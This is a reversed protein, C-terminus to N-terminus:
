HAYDDLLTQIAPPLEFLSAAPESSDIHEITIVQRQGMIQQIVQTAVKLGDYEQYERLISVTHIDGMPSPQTTEAAILLGTDVDYCDFSERGSRWVLRVRWCARNDFEAAGVTEATEVFAPDRLLGEPESQEAQAERETADLIRPGIFPDLSWALNGSYGSRMEGLGALEIIVIRESPLRSAATLVGDIGADPMEFRGHMTGTVNALFAARGGIAEIHREILARADPLSDGGAHNTLVVLATVLGLVPIRRLHFIMDPSETQPQPTKRTRM